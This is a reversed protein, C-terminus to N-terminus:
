PKPDMGSEKRRITIGSAEQTRIRNRLEDYLVPFLFEVPVRLIIGLALAAPLPPLMRGHEFSCLPTADKYGLLRAVTRQSFGMRRRFLALSNKHQNQLLKM